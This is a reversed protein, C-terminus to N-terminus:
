PVQPSVLDFTRLWLECTSAPLDAIARNFNSTRLQLSASQSASKDLVAYEYNVTALAFTIAM